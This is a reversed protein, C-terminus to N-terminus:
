SAAEAIMADAFEVFEEDFRDKHDKWATIAAPYRSFSQIQGKLSRMAHPGMLSYKYKTYTDELRFFSATWFTSMMLEDPDGGSDKALLEAIHPNGAMFLYIEMGSQMFNAESDAMVVNRTQKIQLGVYILSAMVGFAGIFEGLAGLDQISLGMDIEMKNNIPDAFLHEHSVKLWPDDPEIDIGCVEQMIARGRAARDTRESM